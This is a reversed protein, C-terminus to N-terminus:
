RRPWDGLPRARQAGVRAAGPGPRRLGGAGGARRVPHLQLTGVLLWAATVTGIGPASTLCALPEAWASDRLVAAVAAELAAIRRDIRGPPVRRDARGPAPTGGRHRGAVPAPRPAPQAGPACPWCGTARWWGSGRRTTSRRRRPGPPRACRAALRALDRADLADTKARRLPAKACHHAQRPNVVAGRLGGRPARGGPGGLLQRDGRAGGAHRATPPQPGSAAISPQPASPAAM